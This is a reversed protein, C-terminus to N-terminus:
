RKDSKPFKAMIEEFAREPWGEQKEGQSKQSHIHAEKTLGM